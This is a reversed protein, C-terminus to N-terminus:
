GAVLEQTRATLHGDCFTAIVVDVARQGTRRPARGGVPRMIPAHRLFLVM